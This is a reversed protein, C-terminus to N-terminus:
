KVPPFCSPHRLEWSERMKQYLNEIKRDSMVPDTIYLHRSHERAAAVMEEDAECPMLLQWLEPWTYQYNGLVQEGAVYVTQQETAPQTVTVQQGLLLRIADAAMGFLTDDPGIDDRKRQGLASHTEWFAASDLNSLLATFQSPDIRAHEQPDTLVPTTNLDPAETDSNKMTLETM